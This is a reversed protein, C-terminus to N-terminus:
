WTSGDFAELKLRLARKDLGAPRRGARGPTPGLTDRDPVLARGRVCFATSGGPLQIVQM